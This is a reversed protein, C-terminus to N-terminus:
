VWSRIFNEFSLSEM